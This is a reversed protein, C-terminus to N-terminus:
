MRFFFSPLMMFEKSSTVVLSKEHSSLVPRTVFLYLLRLAGLTDPKARMFVFCGGGLLGFNRTITRQHSKHGCLTVHFAEYM